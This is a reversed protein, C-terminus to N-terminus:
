KPPRWPGPGSLIGVVKSTFGEPEKAAKRMAWAVFVLTGVIGIGAGIVFEM